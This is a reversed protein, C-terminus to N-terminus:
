VAEADDPIDSIVRYEIYCYGDNGRREVDGTEEGFRLFSYAMGDDSDEEHLSDLEDMAKTVARVDSFEEYWKLWGLDIYFDGNRDKVTREPMMGGADMAAKLKDYAKEECKIAVM